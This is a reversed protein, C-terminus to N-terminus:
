VALKVSHDRVWAALQSETLKGAAAAVMITVVDEQTAELEYGNLGLFIAMALFATRKNGDRYPHSTVLGWSYAAALTALDSQPEYHHRQQPRALVAELTDEERVGPLGGHERLQDLHVADLVLRSVWLPESPPPRRRPM